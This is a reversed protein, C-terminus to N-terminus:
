SFLVAVLVAGFEFGVPFSRAPRDCRRGGGLSIIFFTTLYRWSWPINKEVDM